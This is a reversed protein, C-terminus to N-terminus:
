LLGLKRRVYESSMWKSVREAKETFPKAKNSLVTKTLAAVGEEVSPRKPDITLRVKM